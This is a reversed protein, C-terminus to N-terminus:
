SYELRIFYLIGEHESLNLVSFLFIKVSTYKTCTYKFRLAFLGNM